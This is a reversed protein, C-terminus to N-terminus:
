ANRTLMEAPMGIRVHDADVDTLRATVLSGADPEVLAAAHAYVAGPESFVLPTTDLTECEPCVDRPPFTRTGCRECVGGILRYRQPQLRWNRPVSM